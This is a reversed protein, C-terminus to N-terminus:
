AKGGPTGKAEKRLRQAINSLRRLRHNVCSKSLPPRAMEGLEKLTAEPHALRLRALERLGEPLNELGVQASIFGIEGKRQLAAEVTKNLNATECNVLRNIRNKVERYVRTNELELLPGSAGMLKLCDGIAGSKKLYVVFGNKRSTMRAKLGLQGLLTLLDEASRESQTAFELHYAPAAGSVWGSGLFLGRLYARRCCERRLFSRRIGSIPRGFRDALGLKLTVPALEGPICIRYLKRRRLRRQQRVLLTAQKQFVARVLQFAKRAVAPNETRIELRVTNNENTIRGAAKALGALEGLLCCSKEEKVRALEAKTAASFSQSSM